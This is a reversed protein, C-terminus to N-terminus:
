QVSGKDRLVKRQNVGERIEEAYLDVVKKVDEGTGEAYCCLFPITANQLIILIEPISVSGKGTELESQLIKIIQNKIELIRIVQM